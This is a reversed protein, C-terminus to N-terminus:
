IIGTHPESDIEYKDEQRECHEPLHLFIHFIGDVGRLRLFENHQFFYVLTESIEEHHIAMFEAKDEVVLPNDKKEEEEGQGVRHYESM